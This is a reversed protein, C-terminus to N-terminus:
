RESSEVEELSTSSIADSRSTAVTRTLQVGASAALRAIEDDVQVHRTALEGVTASHERAAAELEEEMGAIHEGIGASHLRSREQLARAAAEQEDRDAAALTSATQHQVETAREQAAIQEVEARAAKAAAAGGTAQQQLVPLLARISAVKADVMDLTARAM